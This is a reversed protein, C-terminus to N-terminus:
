RLASPADYPLLVAGASDMLGQLRGFADEKADIVVLIAGSEIEDAFQRRVPDPVAAGALLSGLAGAAAGMGAGLLFIYLAAGFVAMLALSVLVGVLTGLLVGRIAAPVLDSDAIKRRDSIRRVEIDSRAVLHIDDDPVGSEIALRVADGAHDVSGTRYVHRHKITMPIQRDEPEAVRAGPINSDPSM